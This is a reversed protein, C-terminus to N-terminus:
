VLIRASFAATSAARAPSAPRPKATTALSTRRRACEEFSCASAVERLMVSETLVMRCIRLTASVVTSRAFCIASCLMSAALAMAAILLWVALSRLLM